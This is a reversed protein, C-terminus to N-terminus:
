SEETEFGGLALVSVYGGTLNRVDTWGNEKLIRLALHSRFGSRCHVVIPRDRRCRRWGSGCSTWPSTSRAGIHSLEYENLNRVDLM